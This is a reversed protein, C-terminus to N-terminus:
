IDVMPSATSLFGTTWNRGYVDWFRDIGAVVQTTKEQLEVLDHPLPLDLVYNACCWLFFESPTLDPSSPPWPLLPSDDRSASGIWLRPIKAELYERVDHHFHPPAGDQQYILDQSEVQLQPMLGQDLMGLYTKNASTFAM